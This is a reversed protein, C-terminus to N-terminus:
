EIVTVLAPGPPAGSTWTEVPMVNLAAILEAVGLRPEQVSSACPASQSRPGIVLPPVAVISSTTVGVTTPVSVQLARISGVPRSGLGSLSEVCTWVATIAHGNGAGTMVTAEEAGGAVPPRAAEEEDPGPWESAQVSVPPYLSERWPDSARVRREPAAPAVLTMQRTSESAPQLTGAGSTRTEISKM